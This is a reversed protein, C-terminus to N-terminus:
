GSTAGQPGSPTSSRVSATARCNSSRYPIRKGSSSARSESASRQRSIARTRRLSSARPSIRPPRNTEPKTPSCNARGSAASAKRRQLFRSASSRSTITDDQSGNFRAPIRVGPGRTGDVAPFRSAKRFPTGMAAMFPPPKSDRAGDPSRDDFSASSCALTRRDTGIGWAFRLNAWSVSAVAYIM